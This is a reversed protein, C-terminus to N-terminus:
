GAFHSRDLLFHGQLCPLHLDAQADKSDIWIKGTQWCIQLDLCETLSSMLSRPGTTWLKVFNNALTFNFNRDQFIAFVNTNKASFIHTAKASCFSSVKKCCFYWHSFFALLKECKQLLVILTNSFVKAVVTLSNTMLLSMLNVTSQVFPGLKTM